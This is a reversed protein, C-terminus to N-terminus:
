VREVKLMMEPRAWNTQPNTQYMWLDEVPNIAM